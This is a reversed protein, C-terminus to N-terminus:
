RVIVVAQSVVEREGRVRVTYAGAPLGSTRVVLDTDVEVRGDFLTAVERGVADM